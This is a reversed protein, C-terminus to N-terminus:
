AKNMISWLNKFHSKDQTVLTRPHGTEIVSGKDMVFVTDFDMVMGLRHSVMVITYNAFEEHIIKQMARDTEQDVSSSVEDLLLIGGSGKEGVSNLQSIQDRTRTRRRLVARALSFLQKQGQSLTDASMSELPGGRQEVLHWLGVTQLVARCESEASDNLPALNLM